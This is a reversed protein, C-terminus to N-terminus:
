DGYAMDMYIWHMIFVNFIFKILGNFNPRDPRSCITTLTPAASLPRRSILQKPGVRACWVCVSVQTLRFNINERTYISIFTFNNIIFITLIKTHCFRAYLLVINFIVYQLTFIYTPLTGLYIALMYFLFLTWRNNWIM